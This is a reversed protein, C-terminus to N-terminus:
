NSGSERPETSLRELLLFERRKLRNVRRIFASFLYAQLNRIRASHPHQGLVRSVAAASEELLSVALAPDGLAKEAYLLVKDKMENAVSLVVPAITRGQIDIPSIRFKHEVSGDAM